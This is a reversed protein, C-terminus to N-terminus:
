AEEWGAAELAASRVDDGFFGFCSDVLEWHEHGLDCTRCDEVVYGYVEGNLYQSYTEVEGVLIDRAREWAAESVEGNPGLDLRREPFQKKLTDATVYIFGVQGWDWGQADAMRFAACSTQMALGSHDMLFLPLVLISERGGADEIVHELYENPDESPQEDGLVYRRHWCAMTGLTYEDRPSDACDDPLIRIRRNGRREEDLTMNM